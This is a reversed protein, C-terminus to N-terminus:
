KGIRYEYPPVVKPKPSEIVLKLKTEAAITTLETANPAVAHTVSENNVIMSKEEKSIEHLEGTIHQNPSVLEVKPSSITYYIGVSLIIIAFPFWKRWDIASGPIKDAKPHDKIKQEGLIAHDMALVPEVTKLSTSAARRPPM